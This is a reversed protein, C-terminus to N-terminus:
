SLEGCDRVASELEVFATLKEDARVIFRKVTAVIRTLLGSREGRLILPQYV